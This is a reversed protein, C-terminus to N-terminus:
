SGPIRLHVIFLLIFDSYRKKLETVNLIQNNSSIEIKMEGIKIWSFSKKYLTQSLCMFNKQSDCIRQVFVESSTSFRKQLFQIPHRSHTGGVM